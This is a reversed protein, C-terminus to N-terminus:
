MIIISVDSFTSFFSSFFFFFHAFLFYVFYYLPFFTLLVRISQAICEDCLTCFKKKMTHQKCRHFPFRIFLVSLLFHVSVFSFIFYTYYYYHHNFSIPLHKQRAQLLVNPRSPHTRVMSVNLYKATGVYSCLVYSPNNQNRTTTMNERQENNIRRRLPIANQNLGDSKTYTTKFPTLHHRM